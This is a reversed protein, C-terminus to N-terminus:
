FIKKPGPTWVKHACECPSPPLSGTRAVVRIILYDRLKIPLRMRLLPRTHCRLFLFFHKERRKFFEGIEFSTKPMLTGLKHKLAFNRLLVTQPFSKLVHTEFICIAKIYAHRLYVTLLIFCMSRYM